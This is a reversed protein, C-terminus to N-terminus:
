QETWTEKSSIFGSKGKAPKVPQRELWREYADLVDIDRAVKSRKKDTPM